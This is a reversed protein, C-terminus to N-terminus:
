YSQNIEKKEKTVKPTKGLFTKGLGLGHLNGELLKMTRARVNIDTNWKSM